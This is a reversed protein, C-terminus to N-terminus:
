RLTGTFSAIIEECGIMPKLSAAGIFRAYYMTTGITAPLTITCTYTGTATLTTTIGSQIITREDDALLTGVPPADLNAPVGEGDTTTITLTVTTGSTFITM